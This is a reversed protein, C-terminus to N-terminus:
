LNDKCILERCTNAVKLSVNLFQLKYFCLTCVTATDFVRRRCLACWLVNSPSSGKPILSDVDSNQICVVMYMRQWCRYTLLIKLNPYILLIINVSKNENSSNRINICYVTCIQRPKLKISTYIGKHWRRMTKWLIAFVRQFMYCVKYTLIIQLM